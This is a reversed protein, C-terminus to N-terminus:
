HSTIIIIIIIIINITSDAHCFCQSLEGPENPSHLVAGLPRRDVGTWALRSSRYRVVPLQLSGSDVGVMAM